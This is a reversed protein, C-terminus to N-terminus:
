ESWTPKRQSGNHRKRSWPHILFPWEILHSITMWALKEANLANRKCKKNAVRDYEEPWHVCLSIRSNCFQQRFFPDSQWNSNVFRRSIVSSKWTRLLRLYMVTLLYDLSIRVMIRFAFCLKKKCKRNGNTRTWGLPFTRSCGGSCCQLTWNWSSTLVSLALILLSIISFFCWCFSFSNSSAKWKQRLPLVGWYIHCTLTLSIVHALRWAIINQM